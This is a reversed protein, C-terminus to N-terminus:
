QEVGFHLLIEVNGSKKGALPSEVAPSILGLGLAAMSTIFEALATQTASADRVIGGTSVAKRPVEFQPKFLLLWERAAPAALKVSPAIKGLSIFSVDACVFDIDKSCYAGNSSVLIQGNLARANLNEMTTVRSDEKLREHLQATGVDIAFVHKAGRQLMCDTFGGTSAGVDLAVRDTMSIQFHELAHELKFGARSVFKLHPSKVEILTDLAVMQGAKELRTQQSWIEGALIHAQAMETNLFLGRSVLLEDLRLKKPAKSSM